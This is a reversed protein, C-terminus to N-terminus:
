AKRYRTSSAIIQIETQLQNFLKLIGQSVEQESKMQECEKRLRDNEVAILLFQQKLKNQEYRLAQAQRDLAVLRYYEEQPVRVFEQQMQGEVRMQEYSPPQVGDHSACSNDRNHLKTNNSLEMRNYPNHIRQVSSTKVMATFLCFFGFLLLKKEM